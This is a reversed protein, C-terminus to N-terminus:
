RYRFPVVMFCLNRPIGQSSERVAIRAGWSTIPWDTRQIDWQCIHIAISVWPSIMSIRRTRNASPSLFQSRKGSGGKSRRKCHAVECGGEKEEGVVVEVPGCLIYWHLFTHHMDVTHVITFFMNNGNNTGLCCCM